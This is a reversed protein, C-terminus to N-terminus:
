APDHEVYDQLFTPEARLLQRLSEEINIGTLTLCAKYIKQLARNNRFWCTSQAVGLYKSTENWTMNKVFICEVVKVEDPQLVSMLTVWTDSDINPQRDIDEFNYSMTASNSEEITIDGLYKFGYSKIQEEDEESNKRPRKPLHFVFGHMRQFEICYYDLCSKFYGEPNKIPGNAVSRNALIHLIKESIYQKIDSINYRNPILYKRGVRNILADYKDMFGTVFENKDLEEAEM